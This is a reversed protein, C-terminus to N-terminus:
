EDEFHIPCTEGCEEPDAEDTLLALIKSDLYRKVIILARVTSLPLRIDTADEEKVTGGNIFEEDLLPKFEARLGPTPIDSLHTIFQGVNEVVVNEAAQSARLLAGELSEGYERSLKDCIAELKAELKEDREKLVAEFEAKTMDSLVDEMREKVDARFGDMTYELGLRTWYHEPDVHGSAIGARGGERHSIIGSLPDIKYERCLMAFLEVATNYATRAHAQAKAKDLITFNANGSAPYQIYNSECMEVGIHTNNASGNKGSGCHWARYNWPLTQLVVGSNSDIVGHCLVDYNPRNWRKAIVSASPQACGVSHLMLGKPGEDQFKRYREDVRNVNSKYCDNLTCISQVINLDSM